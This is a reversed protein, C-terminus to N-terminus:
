PLVECHLWGKEELIVSFMPQGDPWTLTDAVGRLAALDSDLPVVDFARGEVHRSNPVGGVARNVDPSRFFSTFRVPYLAELSRAADQLRALNAWVEPPPSNDLNQKKATASGWLRPHLTAPPTRASYDRPADVSVDDVNGDM